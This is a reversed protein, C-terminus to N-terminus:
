SKKVLFILLILLLWKKKVEKIKEIKNEENKFIILAIGLIIFVTIRFILGSGLLVLGLIVQSKVM